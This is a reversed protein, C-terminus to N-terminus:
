YFCKYSLLYFINKGKMILKALKLADGEMKTVLEFLKEESIKEVNKAVFDEIVCSYEDSEEMVERLPAGRTPSGSSKKLNLREVLLGDVEDGTFVIGQALYHEIVDINTCFQLNWNLLILINMESKKFDEVTYVPAALKRLKPIFPIREDKEM